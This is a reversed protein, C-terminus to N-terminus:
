VIVADTMQFICYYGEETVFMLLVRHDELLFHDLYMQRVQSWSTTFSINSGKVEIAYKLGDKEADIDYPKGLRKIDRFGKQELIGVALDVYYESDRM